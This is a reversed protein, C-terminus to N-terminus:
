EATGEVTIVLRDGPEVTLGAAECDWTKGPNPIRVPRQGPTRCVVNDPTMGKVIGSVTAPPEVTVTVTGEDCDGAFNCVEYDFSDEGAFGVAPMYLFSGNGNNQLGGHAPGTNPVLATSTVDLQNNPDSDNAVVNILVPTAHPTTATDDNATPPATGVGTLAVIANAFQILGVGIQDNCIESLTGSTQEILALYVTGVANVSCTPPPFPPPQSAGVIGHFQFGTFAADLALLQSTFSAASIDDDDDTAVIITKSADARLSSSWQPYTDLLTSLAATSGVNVKVHRYIPLNEDNICNGSGLPPFICVDDGAILVLHLDIFSGSVADALAPLNQEIAAVHQTMSGSSDVVVIVDANNVAYAPVAAL